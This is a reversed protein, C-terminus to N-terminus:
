HSGPKRRSQIAARYDRIAQSTSPRDLFTAFEAHDIGPLSKSREVEEYQEDRLVFIRIRGSRWMWLEPVGLKRYIERKNLGGRTWEVEIALDPRPRQDPHPGLAYCGDPEVAREAAANELTWSGYSGFEVDHELCWVEILCGIWRSLQEHSKSPSMFEIVGELYALRPSPQDGRVELIRRFDSWTAGSLLVIGDSAAGGSSSGTSEIQM